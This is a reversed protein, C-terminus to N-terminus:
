KKIVAQILINGGLIVISGHPEYGNEVYERVLTVFRKIDQEASEEHITKAAVAYNKM